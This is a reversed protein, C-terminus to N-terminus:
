DDRRLEASKIPPLILVYCDCGNPCVLKNGERVLQTDCKTCYCEENPDRTYAPVVIPRASM